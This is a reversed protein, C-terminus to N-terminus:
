GPRPPRAVSNRKARAAAVEAPRQREGGSVLGISGHQIRSLRVPSPIPRAGGIGVRRLGTRPAQRALGLPSSKAGPQLAHGIGCSSAAPPRGRSCRSGSSARQVAASSLGDIGRKRCVGAGEDVDVRAPIGRGGGRAARWARCGAVARPGKHPPFGELPRPAVRAGSGPQRPPRRSRSGLSVRLEAGSGRPQHEDPLWAM